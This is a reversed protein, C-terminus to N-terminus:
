KLWGTRKWLSEHLIYMVVRILVFSVSLWSSLGLNGTFLWSLAMLVVLGSLEWTIAKCITRKKITM